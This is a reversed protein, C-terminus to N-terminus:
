SQILCFKLSWLQWCGLGGKKEVRRVFCNGLPYGRGTEGKGAFGYRRQGLFLHWCTGISFGLGGICKYVKFGM